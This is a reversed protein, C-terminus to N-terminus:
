QISGRVLSTTDLLLNVTRKMKGHKAAVKRPSRKKPKAPQLLSVGDRALSVESHAGIQLPKSAALPILLGRGDHYELTYVEACQKCLWLHKLSYQNMSAANGMSHNHYFRFLRGQRFNFRAACDPNACNLFMPETKM